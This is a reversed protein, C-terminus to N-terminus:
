PPREKAQLSHVVPATTHNPPLDDNEKLPGEPRSLTVFAKKPRPKKMAILVHSIRQPRREVPETEAIEVVQEGGVVDIRAPDVFQGFRIQALKAERESLPLSEQPRSRRRAPKGRGSLSRAGRTAQRRRSLAPLQGRHEAIQDRGRRQRKPEVGLIEALDDANELIGAGADDSASRAIDGPIM